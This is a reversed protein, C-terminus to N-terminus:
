GTAKPLFDANVQGYPTKSIQITIVRDKFEALKLDERKSCGTLAIAAVAVLGLSLQEIRM